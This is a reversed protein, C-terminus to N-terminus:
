STKKGQMETIWHCAAKTLAAFSSASSALGCAQPFNNGSRLLFPVGKWHLKQKLFALHRLFRDQEEKTLHLPPLSEGQSTTLLPEWRDQNQGQNQSQNQLRGQTQGQGQLRGQIQGQNQSQPKHFPGAPLSAPPSPVQPTQPAQFPPPSLLELEVFSRFHGLTYSLSPNDSLNKQSDRKGMYKILALNAPASAEKKLTKKTSSAKM